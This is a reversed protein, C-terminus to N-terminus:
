EYNTRIEGFAAKARFVMKGSNESLGEIYATGDPEQATGKNLVLVDGPLTENLYDIELSRVEHNQHFAMDFCDMAYAIYKANNIHGNFDIDSYAIVKKYAPATEDDPKIKGLRCPIAREHDSSLNFGIFDAKKIERTVTDILVWSSVAAAVIAGTSDRIIFDREFTLRGHQIPWTEATLEEYLEPTRFVDARMRTIIWAVGYRENITGIGFGLSDAALDAINQCFDFLASLKLRRKFDIDSIEVRFQKKYILDM